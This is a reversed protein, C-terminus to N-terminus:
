FHEGAALKGGYVKLYRSITFLKNKDKAYVFYKM